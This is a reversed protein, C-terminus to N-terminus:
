DWPTDLLGLLDDIPIEPVFSPVVRFETERKEGDHGIGVLLFREECDSVQVTAEGVAPVDYTKRQRDVAILHM